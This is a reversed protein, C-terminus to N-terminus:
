RAFAMVAAMAFIALILGGLLVFRVGHGTEGQRVRDSTVEIRHSAM